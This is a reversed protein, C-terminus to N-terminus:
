QSWQPPPLQIPGGLLAAPQDEESPQSAQRSFPWRFFGFVGQSSVEGGLEPQSEPPDNDPSVPVVEPSSPVVLVKSSSQDLSSSSSTEEKKFQPQPLSHNHPIITGPPTMVVVDACISAYPSKPHFMIGAKMLEGCNKLRAIEFDLRKNATLQQQQAIQTMAAQKCLNQLKRDLPLSLTASLGLNFNNNATMDTRVPKNWVVEGPNDPIGDPGDVDVEIQMDDGDNWWRDPNGDEDVDYKPDNPDSRVTTNYWDEWPYNKVTVTQTTTRGTFDTNNYQPQNYTREFPDKWSNSYQIYPTLNATPGQCSIANGYTNTVYPGQLVQIAQNTVSGSSNAIPNATASVGGVSEALVPTGSLISAGSICTAAAIRSLRKGYLRVAYVYKNHRDCKRHLYSKTNDDPQDDWTRFLEPYISIGSRSRINHFKRRQGFGLFRVFKDRKRNRRGTRRDFGSSSDGDCKNVGCQPEVGSRQKRNRGRDSHIGM